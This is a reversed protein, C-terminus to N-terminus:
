LPYLKRQYTHLTDPSVVLQPSLASAQQVGQGRLGRLQAERERQDPHSSLCSAHTLLMQKWWSHTYTIITKNKRNPLENPLQPGIDNGNGQWISVSQLPRQCRMCQKWWVGFYVCGRWYSISMVVSIIRWIVSFSLVLVTPLSKYQKLYSRTINVAASCISKERNSKAWLDTNHQARSYWEAALGLLPRQDCSHSQSFLIAFSVVRPLSMGTYHLWSYLAAKAATFGRRDSFVVGARSHSHDRTNIHQGHQSYWHAEHWVHLLFPERGRLSRTFFVSTTWCLSVDVKQHNTAEGHRKCQM